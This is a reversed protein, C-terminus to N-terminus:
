LCFKSYLMAWSRKEGSIDCTYMIGTEELVDLTASFNKTCFCSKQWHRLRLSALLLRCVYINMQLLYVPVQCLVHLLSLPPCPLHRPPDTHILWPWPPFSPHLSVNPLASVFTLNVPNHKPHSYCCGVAAACVCAQLRPCSHVTAQRLKSNYFRIKPIFRLIKYVIEM